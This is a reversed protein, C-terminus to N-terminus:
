SLLRGTQLILYPLGGHRFLGFNLKGRGLRRGDRRPAATQQDRRCSPGALGAYQDLTNDAEDGVGLVRGVRVFQEDHGERIGGRGLQPRIDRGAKGLLDAGVGAVHIQAALLQQQLPRGDARYIGEAQMKHLLM